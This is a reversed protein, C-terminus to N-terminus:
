ACVFLASPSAQSSSQSASAGEQPALAFALGLCGILGAVALSRPFMRQQKPLRL